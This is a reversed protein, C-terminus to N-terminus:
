LYGSGVVDGVDRSSKLKNWYDFPTAPEWSIKPTHDNDYGPPNNWWGLETDKSRTYGGGCNFVRDLESAGVLARNKFVDQIVEPEHEISIIDVVVPYSEQQALKHWEPIDFGPAVTYISPNLLRVKMIMGRIPQKAEILGSYM